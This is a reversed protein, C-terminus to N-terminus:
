YIVDYVLRFGRAPQPLFDHIVSLNDRYAQNLVNDCHLSIYHVANGSALHVGVGINVIGYGRVSDDGPGLRYQPAALRWEILGNYIPGVYDLRLAGKLPPIFPLPSTSDNLISANVYSANATLAWREALQYSTSAEFGWLRADGQAFQRYEYSPTNITDQIGTFYSYLYHHILNLFPSIEFTMNHFTGKLSLDFEVGTEPVLASDGLISSQSADDPGNGWLEQVTPARFSRGISFTGTIEKSCQQAIGISGTVANEERSENFNVFAPNTSHPAPFTSIHNWDCRLAGQIRTNEAASYEEYAYGAIDSTVSNPGLPELGGINLNDFNTWLGLTGNWDGMKQEEFQLSANYGNQHFNNQEFEIPFNGTLTDPITPHESHIYDTVNGNFRIQDIFSGGIDFLGRLEVTYKEMQIRSITPNKYTTDWPDGPIGYNMSYHKAGAGVMGFNGTYSYGIGEESTHDFSQPMRNLDYTQGIGPDTYTGEPIKIDESHLGGASVSFASAGNSLTTNFYGSYLDNVSNGMVGARGSVTQTSATPIVSTIVNVLGGVANPGFMVSAPGRVVDIEEVSEPEIPVAHAPDFTSIDGTRLGNELILVDNDTLGRLIPRAPASGNYRVSVGPVDEIEEAFSSGPSQHAEIQSKSAVSQYEESTPRAYPSASVTVEEGPIASAALTFSVDATDETVEVEKTMSEYGLSRVFVHYQGPPVEDFRFAGNSGTHTERDLELLRVIAGVVPTNSASVTGHISAASALAPVLLSFFSLLSRCTRM